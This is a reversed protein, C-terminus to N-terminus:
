SSTPSPSPVPSGPAPPGAKPETRTPGVFLLVQRSAWPVADYVYWRGPAQSQNRAVGHREVNFRVATVHRQRLMAEVQAVTKGHIDLGHMAEGPAFASATSEYQERPRAARGFVLDAQGRFSVPVRLGVPCQDGGSAVHCAGTATIPTIANTHTGGFYVVTGVISPSVPLLKLSINLHHRAFEARYQAPDAVPDRVIVDIYHGHRVFSLVHARVPAPGHGAPVSGARHGAQGAPASPGPQSIMTVVLAAAAVAAAAPVAVLWRRRTSRRPSAAPPHPLGAPTATIQGALDALTDPRSLQAAEADSVRAIKSLQNM